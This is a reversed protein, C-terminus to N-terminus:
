VSQLPPATRKRQPNVPQVEQSRDAQDCGFGLNDPIALTVEEGRSTNRRQAIEVGLATMRSVYEDVCAADVLRTVFVSIRVKPKKVIEDPKSM